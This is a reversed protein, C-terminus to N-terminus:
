VTLRLTVVQKATPEERQIRVRSRAASSPPAEREAKLLPQLHSEERSPHLPLQQPDTRGAEREQELSYGCVVATRELNLFVYDRSRAADSRRKIKGRVETLLFSPARNEKDKKRERKREGRRRRETQRRHKPTCSHTRCRVPPFLAWSRCPADEGDTSARLRLRLAPLARLTNHVAAPHHTVSFVSNTHTYPQYLTATCSHVPTHVWWIRIMICCHRMLSLLCTCLLIISMKKKKKDKSQPHM